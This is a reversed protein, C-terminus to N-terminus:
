TRSLEGLFGIIKAGEGSSRAERLAAEFDGTRLELKEAGAGIRETAIQVARHVWDKLFAQTAGPPARERPPGLHICQSIRVPRDKLAAEVRDITNTTLM